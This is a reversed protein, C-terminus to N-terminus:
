NSYLRFINGGAYELKISKGNYEFVEKKIKIHKGKIIEAKVLEYLTYVQNNKIEM